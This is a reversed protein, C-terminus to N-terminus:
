RPHLRDSRDNAYTRREQIRRTEPPRDVTAVPLAFEFVAGSSPHNAARLRGGHAEAISRCISLGMGLGYPKTSFFPEYIKGLLEPAIGPGHDRVTLAVLGDDLLDTEITLHRRATPVESMAELGNVVLNLIVQQLQVRDGSIGPLDPETRRHVRVRRLIADSAVLRVVDGVLENLDLPQVDMQGKVLLARMRRIIEVARVDDSAIDDLIEGVLAMPPQEATLLRRSAQVNTMIAALPQNLEHALGAALEGLTAARAAHVAEARHQQAELEARKRATLDTLMVVAGGTPRRLPEAVVEYWHEGAPTSTACELRLGAQQSGRVSEIGRALETAGPDHEASGRCAALYNQGVPAWAIGNSREPALWAENARIVTGSGDLVAVRSSLSSLVAGSLADISRLSRDNNRRLLASGMVSTVLQLQLVTEASWHRERRTMMLAVFGLAQGGPALPAAVLARVGAVRLTAQDAVASAPLEAMGSLRVVRGQRIEGVLTPLEETEYADPLPPWPGADSTHTPHLRTTHDSFQVLAVRDTEFHSGLRAVWRGLAEDVRDTSVTTLESSLEGMLREFRLRDEASARGLSRRRLALGMLVIAVAQLVLLLGTIRQDFLPTLLCWAWPPDL